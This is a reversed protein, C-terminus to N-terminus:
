SNLKMKVTFYIWNYLNRRQFQKLVRLAYMRTTQFTNRKEINPSVKMNVSGPLFTLIINQTAIHIKIDGIVYQFKFEEEFISTRCLRNPNM